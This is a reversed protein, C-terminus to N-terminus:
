MRNMQMIKTSLNKWRRVYSKYKEEVYSKM